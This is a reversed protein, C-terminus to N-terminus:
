IKELKKLVQQMDEPLPTDFAMLEQTVPHLFSVSQAHLAQRTMGFNQKSPSGYVPDGVVPHHISQLHVRIQHTRGTKIEIRLLAHQTYQKVVHYLSLAYRGQKWNVGMKKRDHQHRGIPTEIQGNLAKVGGHVIAIYIRALQRSKLQESLHRHALDTKAILIVGSTERDLRHIIGPRQVGGIGSLEGSCHHLLAHVLTGEAHGPAPHVVMGAPKNLVILQEDEYLIDLAINEPSLELPQPEPIAVTIVDGPKISYGPKPHQENVVVSGDLIWKRIQSRSPALPEQSMLFKDLRCKESPAGAINHLLLDEYQVVFTHTTGNMNKDIPM